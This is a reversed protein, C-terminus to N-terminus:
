NVSLVENNVVVLMTREKKVTGRALSKFASYLMPVANKLLSGLPGIARYSDALTWYNWAFREQILEINPILRTRKPVVRM